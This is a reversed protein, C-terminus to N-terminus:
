TSANNCHIHEYFYRLWLILFLFWGNFGFKDICIAIKLWKPIQLVDHYLEVASIIKRTEVILSSLGKKFKIIEFFAGIRLSFAKNQYFIYPTIWKEKISPLIEYFVDSLSSKDLYKESSHSLSQKLIRYRYLSQSIVKITSIHSLMELMLIHDESNKLNERYEVGNVKLLDLKFAKLVNFGFFVIQGDVILEKLIEESLSNDNTSLSKPIKSIPKESNKYIDIGWFVVDCDCSKRKITEVYDFSVWDDSDVFSVYKGSAYKLGVNRAASPGSNAIRFLKIQSYKQAFTECISYSKDTSGDDVLILEWDNCSQNLFSCICTEIYKEVNFVPIVVSLFM